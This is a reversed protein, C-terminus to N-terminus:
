TTSSAKCRPEKSRSGSGTDQFRNTTEAALSNPSCARSIWCAPASSSLSRSALLGLGGIRRGLPVSRGCVFTKFNANSTKPARNAITRPLVPKTREVVESLVPHSGRLRSPVITSATSVPMGLRYVAMRKACRWRPEATIVSAIFLLPRLMRTPSAIGDNTKRRDSPAYLPRSDRYRTAIASSPPPQKCALSRGRDPGYSPSRLLRRRDPM